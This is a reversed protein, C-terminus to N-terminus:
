VALYRFINNKNLAHTGTVRGFSNTVAGLNAAHVRGLMGHQIFMLHM